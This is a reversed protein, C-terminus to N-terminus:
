RARPSDAKQQQQKRYRNRRHKIEPAIRRRSPHTDNYRHDRNKPGYHDKPRYTEGNRPRTWRDLNPQQIRVLHLNRLGPRCRLFQKFIIRLLRLLQSPLARAKNHHGLLRTHQQLAMRLTRVRPKLGHCIARTRREHNAHQMHYPRFREIFSPDIRRLPWNRAVVLVVQQWRKLRVLRRSIRQRQQLFRPRRHTHRDALVHVENTRRPIIPARTNRQQQVGCPIEIDVAPPMPMDRDHASYLVAVRNRM